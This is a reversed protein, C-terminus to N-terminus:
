FDLESMNSIAEGSIKNMEYVLEDFVENRQFTIKSPLKKMFKKGIVRNLLNIYQDAVFGNHLDKLVKNDFNSDRNQPGEALMYIRLSNIGFEEILKFPCTVNGLSKSM